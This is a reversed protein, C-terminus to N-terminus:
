TRLMARHQNFGIHGDNQLRGVVISPHRHIRAAFARIAPGSFKGAAVFADYDDPAILADRAWANAADEQHETNFQGADATDLRDFYVDGHKLVLHALEHMLTFWYNDIRSYRRSLAIVAKNDMHFAAGDVYSKPLHSVVELIVGYRQLFGSVMTTGEPEVSLRLLAPLNSVLGELDVEVDPKKEALQQVRMLWAVQSAHEPTYAQSSRFNTAVQPLDDPSQIRLFNCVAHELADVSDGAPKIWERKLLERVPALENLRRKRSIGSQDSAEKRALHLRYNSELELWFEAATGFAEALELATEPTIQKKTNIIESLAQVPRDIIAALDSQTWGREKLERHLIQGPSPVRAPLTRETM